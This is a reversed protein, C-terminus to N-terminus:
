RGLSPNTQLNLLLILSFSRFPLKDPYYLLYFPKEMNVQKEALLVRLEKGATGSQESDCLCSITYCSDQARM